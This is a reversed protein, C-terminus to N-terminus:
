KGNNKFTQISQPDRVFKQYELDTMGLYEMLTLCGHYSNHWRDIWEDVEHLQVSNTHWCMMFTKHPLEPVYNVTRTGDSLRIGAPFDPPNHSGLPVRQQLFEVDIQTM